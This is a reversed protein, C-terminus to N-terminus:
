SQCSVAHDCSPTGERPSDHDTAVVMADARTFLTELFVKLRDMEAEDLNHYPARRYRSGLGTLEMAGHIVASFGGRHGIAYDFLPMDLEHVIARAREIQGSRISRWYVQAVEPRLTMFLSFYGDVGCPWMNLHNQKQGGAIVARSRHAMLCLRRAFEGGVDDKFAQIGPARSLLAEVLALRFPMPRSILFNTVAMVPLYEAAARYHAELSEVTCSAGWDPPLVMLMDAGIDRCRRAFGVAGATPWPQSAAVVMARRDIYEVVRRTLREVEADSLVTYLSDGATLIVCRAGARLFRDLQRCLADDDLDGDRTFPTRVSPCPGSLSSRIWTDCLGM